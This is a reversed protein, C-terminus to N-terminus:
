CYFYLTHTHPPPPEFVLVRFLIIEEDNYCLCHEKMVLSLVQPFDKGKGTLVYLIFYM